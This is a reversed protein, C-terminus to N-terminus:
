VFDSHVTNCNKDAISLARKYFEDRTDRRKRKKTSDEEEVRDKLSKQTRIGLTFVSPCGAEYCPFILVFSHM